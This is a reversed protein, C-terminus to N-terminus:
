MNTPHLLVAHFHNNANYIGELQREDILIVAFISTVRILGDSM